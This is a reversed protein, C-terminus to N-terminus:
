FSGPTTNVRCRGPHHASFGPGERARAQVTSPGSLAAAFRFGFIRFIRISMGRGAAAERRKGKRAPARGLGDSWPGMPRRSRHM